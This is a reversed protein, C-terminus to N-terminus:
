TFKQQLLLHKTLACLVCPDVLWWQITAHIENPELHLDLCPSPVVDLWSAAHPASVSLLCTKDVM